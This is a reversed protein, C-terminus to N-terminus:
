HSSVSDCVSVCGETCDLTRSRLNDCRYHQLSIDGGGGGGEEEEEEESISSCDM